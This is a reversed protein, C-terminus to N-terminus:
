GADAALGDHQIGAIACAEDNESRDGSVGVADLLDGQADRILVSGRSAAIRGDSIVALAAIFAADRNAPAGGRGTGLCGWAKAPAIQPRLIGSGDERKIVLPHGGPDFVTVTVPRLKLERAWRLAADVIDSANSLSLM